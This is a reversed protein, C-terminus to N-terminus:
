AIPSTGAGAHAIRQSSEAPSILFTLFLGVAGALVISGTWLEVPWGIGDTHALAAFYVMYFVAPVAIAFIRLETVRMASPRLRWLLLDAAVGSIAGVIILPYTDELVSMLAANLTLMITLSGIPLKWRLAMFLTAGMLLASHVLIGAVGLEQNEVYVDGFTGLESVDNTAFVEALPSAFQTFFTFMSLTLTVSLVMPLLAKWGTSRPSRRAASRIPGTVILAGGLVLILHTPSMLSEIDEEIGFITHWVMDGLGGVIFIAAGLLSLGYGAPVAKRFPYGRLQNRLAAAYIYAASAFFGSYLVGHWPTIFTELESIHSHAWGDLFLGGVLWATLAVAIWDFQVSGTPQERVVDLGASDTPTTTENSMLAKM